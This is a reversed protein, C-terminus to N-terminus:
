LPWCGGEAPGSASLDVRPANKYTRLRRMLEQKVASHPGAQEERYQLVRSLLSAHIAVRRPFAFRMPVNYASCYSEVGYVGVAIQSDLQAELFDTVEAVRGARLSRLVAVTNVADDSSLTLQTSVGRNFGVVGGLYYSALLSAAWGVWLLSRRTSRMEGEM